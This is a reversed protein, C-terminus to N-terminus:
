PTVGSWAQTDGSEFGDAFIPHVDTAANIVALRLGHIKAGNAALLAEAFSGWVGPASGDVTLDEVVLVNGAGHAIVQGEIITTESSAGRLELSRPVAVSERFTQAALVVETCLPTDVAAQISPYSGSPVGCVDATAVAECCLFAAAVLGVTLKEPITRPNETGGMSHVETM